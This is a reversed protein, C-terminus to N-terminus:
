IKCHSDFECMLTLSQIRRAVEISGNQNFFHHHNKTEYISLRTMASLAVEVNIPKKKLMIYHVRENINFKAAGHEKYSDDIGFKNEKPLKM